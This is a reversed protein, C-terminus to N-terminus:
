GVTDRSSFSYADCVRVGTVVRTGTETGTQEPIICDMIRGIPQHWNLLLAKLCSVETEEVTQSRNSFPGSLASPHSGDTVSTSEKAPVSLYWANGRITPVCAFRATPGWTQFGFDCIRSRSQRQRHEAETTSTGDSLISEECSDIGTPPDSEPKESYGRYVKYGRFRPRNTSTPYLQAFISSFTGDAAM